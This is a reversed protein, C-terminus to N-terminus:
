CSSGLYLLTCDSSINYVFRSSIVEDRWDVSKAMVKSEMQYPKLANPMAPVTLTLMEMFEDHTLDAFQTVGM